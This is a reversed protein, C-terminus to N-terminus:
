YHLSPQYWAGNDWRLASESKKLIAKGGVVRDLGNSLESILIKETM